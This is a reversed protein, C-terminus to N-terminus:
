APRFHGCWGCLSDSDLLPSSCTCDRGNTPPPSGNAEHKKRALRERDYAKTKERNRAKWERSLQREREAKKPDKRRERQKRARYSNSLEEPPKTRLERGDSAHKEVTSHSRRFKAAIAGYTWDQARLKRWEEVEDDTVPRSGM